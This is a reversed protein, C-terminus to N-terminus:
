SDAEQQTDQFHWGTFGSPVETVWKYLLSPASVTSRFGQPTQEV